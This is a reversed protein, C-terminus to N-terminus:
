QSRRFRYTKSLSGDPISSLVAAFLFPMYISRYRVIAGIINVTYGLFLLGSLGLVLLCVSLSKWGTRKYLAYLFLAQLATLEVAFPLYQLGKNEWLLPRLFGFNFSQPFNKLVGRANPELLRAPLFSNAKLEIFANQWAALIRLPNMEPSLWASSFIVVGCFAYGAAFAKWANVKFKESVIWLAIAPIILLVSYTRLFFLATLSLTLVLIYHLKGEERDLWKQTQRFIV